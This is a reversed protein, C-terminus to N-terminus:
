RILELVQRCSRCGYQRLGRQIQNHRFASLEVERCLCAYNFRGQRRVPIDSLDYQCRVSPEAGFFNMVERWEGGHPKVSLGFRQEVIFHAVEHPITNDFNDQYYKSFIWPNYRISRQWRGQRQRMRYMGASRGKLDFTIDVPSPVLQYHQAALRIYRETESVVCAREDSAIPEIM